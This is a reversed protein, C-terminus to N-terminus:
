GESTHAAMLTIPYPLNTFILIDQAVKEPKNLIPFFKSGVRAFKTQM